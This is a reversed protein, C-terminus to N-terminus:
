CYYYGYLKGNKSRSFCATLPTGCAGCRVFRKLPFDPNVKRRPATVPKKGELIDQV